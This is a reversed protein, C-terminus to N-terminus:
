RPDGPQRQVIGRVHIPKAKCQRSCSGGAVSDDQGRDLSRRGGELEKIPVPLEQLRGRSASHTHSSLARTFVEQFDARVEPCYGVLQQWRDRTATRCHDIERPRPLAVKGQSVNGAKRGNFSVGRIEES